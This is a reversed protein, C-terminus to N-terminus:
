KMEVSILQAASYSSIRHGDRLMLKLTCRIVNFNESILKPFQKCLELPLFVGM